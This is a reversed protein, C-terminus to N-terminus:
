VLCQPHSYDLGVHYGSPGVLQGDVDFSNQFSYVEFEGVDLCLKKTLGKTTSFRAEGSLRPLLNLKSNM